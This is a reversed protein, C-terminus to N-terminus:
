RPRFQVVRSRETVSRGVGVGVSMGTRVDEPDADVIGTVRVPGFEAIATTYPVDEAFQPAAVRVVTYTEVTGSDPLPVEALDRSGCRPCVRRPPLSGHGKACELYYGEGDEIADLLDDYGEDPADASM